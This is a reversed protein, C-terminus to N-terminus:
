TTSVRGIATFFTVAALFPGDTLSALWSRASAEDLAGAQWAHRAVAPMRLVAEAEDYDRFMAVTADVAVVEFGADALLRGLRRGVDANRM